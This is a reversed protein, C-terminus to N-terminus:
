SMIGLGHARGTKVRYAFWIQVLTYAVAPLATLPSDIKIHSAVAGISIVTLAAISWLILRPALLALSCLLQVICIFFIFEETYGFRLSM